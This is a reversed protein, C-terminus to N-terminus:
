DSLVRHGRPLYPERHGAQLLEDLLLGLQRRNGRRAATIPGWIPYPAHHGANCMGVNFTVSGM